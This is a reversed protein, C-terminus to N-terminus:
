YTSYLLTERKQFRITFINTVGWVDANYLLIPKVTSDFVHISTKIGPNLNIFDNSLKHYAKLAKKYLESRAEHFSGSVTLHVGLYKYSSVCDIM